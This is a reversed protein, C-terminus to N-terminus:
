FTHLVPLPLQDQLSHLQCWASFCSGSKNCYRSQYACHYIWIQSFILGSRPNSTFLFASTVFPQTPIHMYHLMRCSSTLLIMQITPKSSSKNLLKESINGGKAGVNRHTIVELFFSERPVDVGRCWPDHRYASLFIM